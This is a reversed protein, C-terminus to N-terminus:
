IVLPMVILVVIVVLTIAFLYRRPWRYAREEAPDTM